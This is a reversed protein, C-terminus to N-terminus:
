AQVVADYSHGAFVVKVVQGAEVNQTAGNLVLAAGKEAANIVNDLAVTNISVAVESLDVKVVHGIDSANGSANAAEATITLPGAPWASVDAAPVGVSWTGDAMVTAPYSVGNVTVTVVNGAPVDSSTGCIVLAQQHEIANVIDDGAVTDIRLGPLGADITFDRSSEGTNGHGNTVSVNVTISGNGLATLVDSGVGVSWTGDANVTTTYTEGGLIVTVIDDPAAGSVKGSLTQGSNVEALNLVDDSTVPNITVVPLVTDVLLPASGTVSNGVGDTASATVTYNAEGLGNLDLVPVSIHWNGDADTVAAYNKGNLTVTVPTGAALGNSGGSIVLPEGRELANLVNDDALDNFSLTPAASSVSFSPDQMTGKNGAADTITVTYNIQGDNLNGFASAPVGVQWTTGDANVVGTYSQGNFTVVVKDGAAAGSVTGSFVHSQGLEAANLVNDDTLPNVTIGPITTDVTIPHVLVTENGAKDSVSISVDLKGDTLNAADGAPVTVQWSGDRGVAGTYTKGNLTVNVIQGPEASSSGSIVLNTAAEAANIIDDQTVASVSLMPPTTDVTLTQSGSVKNGAADTGSVAVNYVGDALAGADAAPVTVSWKGGEGVTTTYTKGNLTVSLKTGAALESSGGSVVLDNGRDAMNLMNSNDEGSHCLEDMTIGAKGTVVNLTIKGGDITKDGIIEVVQYTHNGAAQTPLQISWTGDKSVQGSAIVVGDANKIQITAGAEGTGSFVPNTDDTVANNSLVGKSDGKNDTVVYSPKSVEVEQTNDIYKYKTKESGHGAIAGILGGGLIGAAIWAWSLDDSGGIMLPELSGLASEVPTLAVTDLPLGAGANNAFTIHTLGQNEDLFVLEGHHNDGDEFFYGNCRIVSGDKMYILLDNGQREYREVSKASAHVQVISPEHLVVSLNGESTLVNKAATKRSIIDVVKTM